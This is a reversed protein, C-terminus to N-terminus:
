RGQYYNTQNSLNQSTQILIDKLNEVLYCELRRGMNFQLQYFIFLYGQRPSEEKSKLERSKFQIRSKKIGIEQIRICQKKLEDIDYQQLIKLQAINRMEKEIDYYPILEQVNNSNQYIEVAKKILEVESPDITEVIIKYPVRKATNFCIFEDEIINVILCSDMLGHNFPITIGGQQTLQWLVNINQNITKLFTIMQEKREEIEIGKLRISQEILNFILQDQRDQYNARAEKILYMDQFYDERSNTNTLGKNVFEHKILNLFKTFGEKISYCKSDESLAKLTWELRYYNSSNMLGYKKLFEELHQNGTVYYIYCLQFIYQHIDQNNINEQFKKIIDFKLSGYQEKLICKLLSNTLQSM